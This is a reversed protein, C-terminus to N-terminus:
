LNLMSNNEAAKLYRNLDNMKTIDSYAIEEQPTRMHSFIVRLDGSSIIKFFVEKSTELIFTYNFSETICESEHGCGWNVFENVIRSGDKGKVIGTQFLHLGSSSKVFIKQSNKLTRQTIIEVRFRYSNISDVSVFQAIMQIEPRKLSRDPKTYVVTAGSRREVSVVISGKVEKSLKELSEPQCNAEHHPGPLVYFVILAVLALKKM